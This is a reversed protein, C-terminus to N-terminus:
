LWIYFCLFYSLIVADQRAVSGFSRSLSGRPQQSHCDRCLHKHVQGIYQLQFACHGSGCAECQARCWLVTAETYPVGNSDYAVQPATNLTPSSAPQSTPAFTPTPDATSSAEPLTSSLESAPPEAQAPEPVSGGKPRRQRLLHPQRPHPHPCLVFNGLGTPLGILAASVM